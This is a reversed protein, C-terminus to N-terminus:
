QQPMFMNKYVRNLLLPVLQPQQSLALQQMPECADQCHGVRQRQQQQQQTCATMVIVFSPM